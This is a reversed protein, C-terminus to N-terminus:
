FVPLDQLHRSPNLNEPLFSFIFVLYMEVCIPALLLLENIFNEIIKLNFFNFINFLLLKSSFAAIECFFQFEPICNLAASTQRSFGFRVSFRYVSLTSDPFCFLIKDTLCKSATFLLYRKQFNKKIPLQNQLSGLIKFVDVKGLWDEDVIGTKFVHTPKRGQFFLTWFIPHM